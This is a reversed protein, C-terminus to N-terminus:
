ELRLITFSYPPFTCRMKGQVIGHPADTTRPVIQRPDEPTNIQDLRGQLEIRRATPSKPVFGDFVIETDLPRGELNVAQLQLVKGQADTAATVDLSNHPSEVDTRVCAPLYHRSIMQTM